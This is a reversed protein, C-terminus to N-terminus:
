WSTDTPLSPRNCHRSASAGWINITVEDGPGLVYNAPTAINQSPAFTLNQSSFINRGFVQKANKTDMEETIDLEEPKEEETKEEEKIGVKEQHTVAEEENQQEAKMREAKRRVRQLQTMTVGKSILQTAIDTQTAGSQTEKMIFSLVQDDTMSQAKVGSGLLAPLVLLLLLLLIRTKMNHQKISKQRNLCM